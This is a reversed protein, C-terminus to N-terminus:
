RVVAGLATPANHKLWIQWRQAMSGARRPSQISELRLPTPLAVEPRARIRQGVEIVQLKAVQGEKGLADPLKRRMQRIQGLTRTRRPWRGRRSPRPSSIKTEGIQSRWEVALQPVLTHGSQIPVTEQKEKAIIGQTMGTWRFVASM